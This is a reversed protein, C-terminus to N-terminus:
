TWKWPVKGTLRSLPKAMESFNKVWRRTIGVTGLFARVGTQDILIPWDVIKAIREEKVYIYGGMTYIVGLCKISKM